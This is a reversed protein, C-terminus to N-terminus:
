LQTLVEVHKCLLVVVQGALQPTLQAALQPPGPNVYQWTSLPGVLASQLSHQLHTCFRATDPIINHQVVMSAADQLLGACSKEATPQNGGATVRSSFPISVLKGLM